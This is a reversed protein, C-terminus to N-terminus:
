KSKTQKPRPKAAVTCPTTEIGSIKAVEADMTLLFPAPQFAVPVGEWVIEPTGTLKGAVPKDLKLAIEPEQSQLTSIVLEKPRCEPTARVVTGRLQPVAADKLESEFYQTGNEAALADKVRTWLAFEPHEQEFKARKEQAIEAVSKVKFGEPPLPSMLAAQKLDKLGESDEGHYQKYFKELNPEVTSKQWAPDVAGKVPDLAAARALSYLMLTAKEPHANYQCLAASGLYWAAQVSEPYAGVATRAAQEAKPCDKQALAQAAPILAVYRLAGDAVKKLDAKTRTWEEASVGAPMRDYASLQRAAKEGTALQEPTPEKIQQIAVSSSYLLRAVDAANEITNHDLLPAAAELVKGWQQTSNYAQVYLYQREDSVVTTPYKAKWSDLDTIAKPFNKATFDKVVADYMQYEEQTAITKQPQAGSAQANAGVHVALALCVVFWQRKQMIM